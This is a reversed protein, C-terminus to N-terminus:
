KAGRLMALQKLHYLAAYGKEADNFFLGGSSDIALLQGITGQSPPLTLAYGAALSDPAKLSVGDEGSATLERFTLKSADELDVNDKVNFGANTITMKDVDNVTMTIAAVTSDALDDVKIESNGEFIRKTIDQITNDDRLLYVKGDATNIALEGSQLQAASPINGAVASRKHRIRTAM